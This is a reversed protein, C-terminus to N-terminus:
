AAPLGAKQWASFGGTINIASLGHETAIKAALFSRGGSHCMFYVCEAAPIRKPDHAIEDLPINQFGRVHGKMFEEESRVDIFICEADGGEIIAHVEQISINTM